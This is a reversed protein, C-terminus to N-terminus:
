PCTTAGARRAPPALRAGGGACPCPATRARGRSRRARSWIAGPQTASEMTTLGHGGTGDSRPGELRGGRRPCRLWRPPRTSSPRGLLTGPDPPRRDAVPAAALREPSRAPDSRRAAAPHDRLGPRPAELVVACMLLIAITTLYMFLRHTLQIDVLRGYQFPMFRNLCTPFQEGCALHAGLVPQNATGEGETGAVLRRRRHDRASAGDGGRRQRPAGTLQRGGAGGAGAPRDPSDRDLPRPAADGARPPRRGPVSHLGHEVTLGGLVPRPSSWSRRRWRAARWGGGSASDGSPRFPRARRDVGRGPDGVLRHSFEIM